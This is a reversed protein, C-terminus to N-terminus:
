RCRSRISRRQGGRSTACGRVIDPCIWECRPLAAPAAFVRASRSRRPVPRRRVCWAASYGERRAALPLWPFCKREGRGMLRDRLLSRHLGDHIGDGDCSRRDGGRLVCAASRACADPAQRGRVRRWAPRCRIHGSSTSHRGSRAHAYAAFNLARKSVSRRLDNPRSM